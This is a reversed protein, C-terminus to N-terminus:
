WYRRRLTTQARRTSIRDRTEQAEAQGKSHLDLYKQLKEARKTTVYVTVRDTVHPGLGVTVLQGDNVATAYTRADTNGAGYIRQRRSANRIHLTAICWGFRPVFYMDLQQLLRNDESYEPWKLDSALIGPPLQPKAPATTKTKSKAPM